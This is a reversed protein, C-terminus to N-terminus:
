NITNTNIINSCYLITNIITDHVQNISPFFLLLYLSVQLTYLLINFIVYGMMWIRKFAISSMWHRRAQIINESWVVLLLVYASICCFDPFDFLVLSAKDIFDHTSGNSSTIIKNDDDINTITYNLGLM